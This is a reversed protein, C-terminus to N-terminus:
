FARKCKALLSQRLETRWLYSKKAALQEFTAISATCEEPTDRPFYRLICYNQCGRLSLGTNYSRGTRRSEKERALIEKDVGIIEDACSTLQM